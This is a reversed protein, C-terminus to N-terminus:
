ELLGLVPHWLHEVQNVVICISNANQKGALLPYWLHLNDAKETSEKSVCKQNNEATQEGLDGEALKSACFRLFGISSLNIDKNSRSSTFAVLCNVCDTFTNTETETIHPFYDRIIKEIIEFSLIVNNKHDDNAATTFVQMNNVESLFVELQYSM